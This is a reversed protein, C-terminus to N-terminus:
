EMIAAWVERRSSRREAGTWDAREQRLCGESLALLAQFILVVLFVREDLNTRLKRARPQKSVMATYCSSM